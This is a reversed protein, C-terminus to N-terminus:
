VWEVHTLDNVDLGTLATVLNTGFKPFDDGVFMSNVGSTDELAGIIKKAISNVDVEVLGTAALIDGTGYKYIQLRAGHVSNTRTAKGLKESGIVEDEALRTGTVVPSLTVVCLASLENVGNQVNHALLSLSAVKKLAELDAV